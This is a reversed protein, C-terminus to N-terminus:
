CDVQSNADTKAIYARQRDIAASCRERTSM